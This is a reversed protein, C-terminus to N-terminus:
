GNLDVARQEGSRGLCYIFYDTTPPKAGLQRIQTVIQGRHYTSHNVVHILTDRLPQVTEIGSRTRIAVLQSLDEETLSELYSRQRHWFSDWLSRLSKADKCGGYDPPDGLSHGEWRSLWVVETALLHELTLRLSSFSGLLTENYHESSMEVAADLCREHAWRNYEYLDLIDAVNM